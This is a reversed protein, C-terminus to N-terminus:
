KPEDKLFPFRDRNPLLRWPRDDPKPEPDPTPSKWQRWQDFRDNFKHFPNLRKIRQEAYWIAFFVAAIIILLRITASM